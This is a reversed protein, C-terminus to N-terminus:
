GKDEQEEPLTNKTLNFAITASIIQTIVLITVLLSQINLYLKNKERANSILNDATTASEKGNFTEKYTKCDEIKLGTKEADTMKLSLDYTGQIFDSPIDKVLGAEEAPCLVNSLESDRSLFQVGYIAHWISYDQKSNVALSTAFILLSIIIGAVSWRYVRKSM